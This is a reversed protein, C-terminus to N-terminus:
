PKDEVMPGSEYGPIVLGRKSITQVMWDDIAKRIQKINDKDM